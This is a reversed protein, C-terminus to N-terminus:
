KLLANGRKLLERLGQEKKQKAKLEQELGALREELEAELEQM